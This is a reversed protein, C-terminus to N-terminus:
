EEIETEGLRNLAPRIENWSYGRRLLADSLRKLEARDPKRGKLKGRLFADIADASDPLEALAEEWLEKPIGRRYLEQEVRGRGYGMAAYHRVVVGAYASDNVAGLEEMREAAEAAEDPDAGKRRLRDTLEKKSLMRSSAMRAARLKTESCRAAERLADVQEDSLEAGPYIGFPLLEAETIRLLEGEEPYVLVRGQKHKSKEVKAIRM